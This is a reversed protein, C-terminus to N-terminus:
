HEHAVVIGPQLAQREVPFRVGPIEPQDHM